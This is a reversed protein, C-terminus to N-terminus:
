GSELQRTRQPQCGYRYGLPTSSVRFTSDSRTQRQLASMADLHTVASEAVTSQHVAVSFALSYGRRRGDVAGASRRPRAVLALDHLHATVAHHHLPGVPGAGVHHLVVLDRAGSRNPGGSLPCCFAADRLPPAPATSTPAPGTARSYSGSRGSVGEWAREHRVTSRQHESTPASALM